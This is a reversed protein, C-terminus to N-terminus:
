TIVPSLIDWYIVLILNSPNSEYAWWPWSPSIKVFQKTVCWYSTLFLNVKVQLTLCHVSFGSFLHWRIFCLFFRLLIFSYILSAIHFCSEFLNSPHCSICETLLLPVYVKSLLFCMQKSFCSTWQVDQAPKIM